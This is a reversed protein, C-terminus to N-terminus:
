QAEMGFVENLLEELLDQITKGEQAATVKLRQHLATQIHVVKTSQAKM